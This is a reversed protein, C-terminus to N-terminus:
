CKNRTGWRKNWITVQFVHISGFSDRISEYHYRSRRIDGTEKGLALDDIGVCDDYMEAIELIDQSVAQNQLSGGGGFGDVERVMDYTYRNAKRGPHKSTNIKHSM